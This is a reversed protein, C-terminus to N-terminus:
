CQDQALNETRPWGRPPVRSESRDKIVTEGGGRRRSLFRSMQSSGPGLVAGSM